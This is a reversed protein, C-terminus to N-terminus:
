NQLCVYSNYLMILKFDCVRTVVRFIFQSSFRFCVRLKISILRNFRIRFSCVGCYASQIFQPSVSCPIYQWLHPCYASSTFCIPLACTQVGTVNSSCTHRRRSSFFFNNTKQKNINKVDMNRERIRIRNDNAELRRTGKRDSAVETRM